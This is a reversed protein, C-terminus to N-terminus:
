VARLPPVAMPSVSFIFDPTKTARTNQDMILIQSSPVGSRLLARCYDAADQLALNCAVEGDGCLINWM